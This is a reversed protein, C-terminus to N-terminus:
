QYLYKPVRQKEKKTDEKKSKDKKAEPEKKKAATKVEAKKSVVKKTTTTVAKHQPTATKVVAKHNEPKQHAKPKVVPAKTEKKTEVKKAPLKKSEGKTQAAPHVAPKSVPTKKVQIAKAATKKHKTKTITSPKQEDAAEKAVAKVLAVSAPIAVAIAAAKVIPKVAPKEVANNQPTSMTGPVPIGTAVAVTNGMDPEAEDKDKAGSEIINKVWDMNSMSKDVPKKWPLSPSAVVQGKYRLDLVQYKDWGVRDLVKKYFLFLNNFKDSMMSTDGLIIRQDGLVPILEFDNNSDISIQSVQANWFTDRTIYRVLSVIQGKLSRSVSDDKLEPVNTVVTTYYVYNASLPMAALTTDLYYSNGANDFIRAVPIRQTVNVHLVHMNDIYVQADAVWPNADIIGEMSRIDLKGISLNQINIHRDNIIMNMIQQRDIFHYQKEGRIRIDISNLKKDNEVRSASSIAIICGTTLVLTFVVQLVKRISIKRKESM